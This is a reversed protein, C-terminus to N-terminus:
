CVVKGRISVTDNLPGYWRNGVYRYNYESIFDCGGPVWFYDVDKFGCPSWMSVHDPWLDCNKGENQVIIKGNGTYFNVMWSGTCTSCVDAANANAVPFLAMFAAFIAVFMLRVKM